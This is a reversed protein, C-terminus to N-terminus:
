GAPQIHYGAGSCCRGRSLRLYPYLRTQYDVTLFGQRERLVDNDIDNKAALM